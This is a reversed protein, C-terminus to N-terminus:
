GQKGNLHNFLFRVSEELEGGFLRLQPESLSKAVRKEANIITSHNRGGLFSGIAQYPFGYRHALFAFAQRANVVKGRGRGRASLIEGPIGWSTSVAKFLNELTITTKPSDDISLYNRLTYGLSSALNKEPSFRYHDATVRAASLLGGFSDCRSAIQAIAALEGEVQEIKIPPHESSLTIELAKKFIFLNDQLVPNSFSHIPNSVLRAKLGLPLNCNSPHDPCVFVFAQQTDTKRADMINLLYEATANGLRNLNDVAFFYLGAYFNALTDPSLRGQKDRDLGRLFHTTFQSATTYGAKGPHLANIENVCAHLAMTKGSGSLGYLTLIKLTSPSGTDRVLRELVGLPVSNGSHSIIDGLRVPNPQVLVRASIDPNYSGVGGERSLPRKQNQHM